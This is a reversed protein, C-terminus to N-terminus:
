QAAEASLEAELRWDASGGCGPRALLGVVVEAAVLDASGCGAMISLFSFHFHEIGRDLYLRSCYSDLMWCGRQQGRGAEDLRAPSGSSGVADLACGIPFHRPM